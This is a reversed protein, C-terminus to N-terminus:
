AARRNPRVSITRNDVIRMQQSAADWDAEVGKARFRRGFYLGEKLLLVEQIVPLEEFGIAALQERFSARAAEVNVLHDKPQM